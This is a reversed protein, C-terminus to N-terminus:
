GFVIAAAVAKGMSIGSVPATTLTTADSFQIGTSHVVVQGTMTGGAKALYDSATAVAMTGLGLSARATGTSEAVWGSASGVLFNGDASSLAAIAALDADYAQVDTGPVLSLATRAASATSAGTGGNAISLDTGSWTANNVTALIALAGLGLNSRGGSASALDSLNNAATLMGSASIYAAVWASGNYVKMALVGVSSDFWLDGTTVTAGTPATSSAGHFISNFTALDAAAATASTAANGAQTSALGVQATALTVQAAGASTALGVQAAATVASAAAATASAAADTATTPTTVATIRGYADVSFGNESYTAPTVATTQLSITPNGSLGNGNVIDINVAAIERTNYGGAGQSLVFGATMGKLGAFAVDISTGNGFATYFENFNDNIKGAAVYLDDGDLTGPDLRDITQKTM